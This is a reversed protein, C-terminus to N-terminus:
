DHKGARLCGQGLELGGMVDDNPGDLGGQWGGGREGGVRVDLPALNEHVANGSTDGLDGRGVGVLCAMLREKTVVRGIVAKADRLEGGPNAGRGGVKGVGGRRDYHGKLVGVAGDKGRKEELTIEEAKTGL